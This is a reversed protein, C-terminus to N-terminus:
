GGGTEQLLGRLLGRPGRKPLWTHDLPEHADTVASQTPQWCNDLEACVSDTDGHVVAMVQRYGRERGTYGPIM